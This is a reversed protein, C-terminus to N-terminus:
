PIATGRDRTHSYKWFTQLLLGTAAWRPRAGCLVGQSGSLRLELDLVSVNDPLIRLWPSGQDRPGFSHSHCHEKTFVGFLSSALRQMHSRAVLCPPYRFFLLRM